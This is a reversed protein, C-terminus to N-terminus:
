HPHHHDGNSSSSSSSHSPEPRPQQQRPQQQQRQQQYQRQQPQQQYQRQPQQQYQRQPQQQYQQQPQQQYQRQPPQQQYQRQPPQQQYQRQPPQQQDQRQQPQQQQYRRQQPQQQDQRQQPQQQQYRRQEPQQQQQQYQRATVDTRRQDNRQTDVNGRNDNFRAWPDNSNATQSRVHTADNTQRTRMTPRSTINNANGRAQSFRSWSDNGGSGRTTTVASRDFRTTVAPRYRRAVDSHAFTTQDFRRNAMNSPLTAQTFRMNRKSPNIPVSGRGNFAVAGRVNNPDVRQNNRFDGQKWRQSGISTAGGYRYNHYNSIAIPSVYDHRGRGWWPRYPDGPGLAVWGVNGFSVGLSVGGGFGFFAVLGPAWGEHRRPAIWCWGRNGGRHAWRGYHYPAWGWPEYSVWTYGYYPGEYAWAGDRYPAWDAVQNDPVWVQGYTPDDVWQGYAGLDQADYAGYSNNSALAQNLEADRNINFSDFADIAVSAQTTLEPNAAVGTAVLTEGIGITQSGQPTVIDASGARVTVLTQGDPTVTVRYRGITDPRVSISPTDIEPRMTSGDLLDVAVTGAALQVVTANPDLNAFRVQANEGARLLSSGDFQIEARGDAGTTLADGVLVPANVAAAVNAQTDAREVAVTGNVLSIRAAGPNGADAVPPATTTADIADDALVPSTFSVALTGALLAAALGGAVIKKM